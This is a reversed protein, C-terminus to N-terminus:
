PVQTVPGTSQIWLGINGVLGTVTVRSLKQCYILERLVLDRIGQM